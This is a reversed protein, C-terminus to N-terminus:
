QSAIAPVWTKAFFDDEWDIDEDIVRKQLFQFPINKDTLVVGNGAQWFV